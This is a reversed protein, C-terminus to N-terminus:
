LVLEARENIFGMKTLLRLLRGNELQRSLEHDLVDTYSCYIDIFPVRPEMRHKGKTAISRM